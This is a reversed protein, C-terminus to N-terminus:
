QHSGAAAGQLDARDTVGAEAKGNVMQLGISSDSDGTVAV